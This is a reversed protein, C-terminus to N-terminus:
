QMHTAIFHDTQINVLYDTYELLKKNKPRNSVITHSSVLLILYMVYCPRKSENTLLLVLALAQRYTSKWYGPSSSTTWCYTLASFKSASMKIKELVFFIISLRHSWQSAPRSSSTTSEQSYRKTTSGRIKLINRLDRFRGNVVAKTREKAERITLLRKRFM